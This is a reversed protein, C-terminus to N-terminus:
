NFLIPQAFMATIYLAPVTVLPRSYKRGGEMKAVTISSTEKRPLGGEWRDTFQCKPTILLHVNPRNLDCFREGPLSIQVPIPRAKPDSFEVNATIEVQHNM